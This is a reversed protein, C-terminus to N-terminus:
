MQKQRYYQLTSSFTLDLVFMGEAEPIYFSSNEAKLLQPSLHVQKVTKHVAIYYPREILTDYNM